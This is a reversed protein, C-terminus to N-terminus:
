EDDDAKDENNPIQSQHQSAINLQDDQQQSPILVGQPPDNNVVDGTVVSSLTGLLPNTNEVQQKAQADVSMLPQTPVQPLIKESFQNQVDEVEDDISIIHKEVPAPNILPKKEPSTFKLKINEEKKRQQEGQKRKQDQTQKNSAMMFGTSKINKNNNNVPKKDSM